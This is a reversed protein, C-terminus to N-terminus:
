EDNDRWNQPEMLINLENRYPYVGTIADSVTMKTRSAAKINPNIPRKPSKGFNSPASLGSSFYFSFDTIDE